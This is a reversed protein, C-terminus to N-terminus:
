KGEPRESPRAAEGEGALERALWCELAHPVGRDVRCVPCCAYGDDDGSWELAKLQERTPM